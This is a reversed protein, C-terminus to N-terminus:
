GVALAPRVGVAKLAELILDLSAGKGSLIRRVVKEDRDMLKALAVKSLSQTSMAAALMARAAVAPDVPVLVGAIAEAAPLARGRDLYFELAAALADPANREAEERTDGQTIAEPVDPFTVIFDGPGDERIEARYAYPHM